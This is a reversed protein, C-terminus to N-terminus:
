SVTLGLSRREATMEHGYKIYASGICFLMWNVSRGGGERGGGQCGGM